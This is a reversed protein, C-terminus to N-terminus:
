RKRIDTDASIESPRPSRGTHNDPNPGSPAPAAAADTDRAATM